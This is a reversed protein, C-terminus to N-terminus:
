VFNGKSSVEPHRQKRLRHFSPLLSAVPLAKWYSGRRLAIFKVQDERTVDSVEIKIM